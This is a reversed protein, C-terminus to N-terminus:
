KIGYYKALYLIKKAWNTHTNKENMRNNQFSSSVLSDQNSDWGLISQADSFDTQSVQYAQNIIPIQNPHIATKGIFGSLRDQALEKILGEKWDGNFYEWVAGSIIYDLGYVTIIDTFISSIVPISHISEYSHRRLGFLHCLDNGGVRINLVLHELEDLKKKLQYLNHERKRLDVVSESEYIPMFYISSKSKANVQFITELYKDANDLSFKPFIFGTVINMVEGLNQFLRFIQEINRVRIFIKPLYFSKILTQQYIEILSSVLIEEAQKVANDSITDELCLALSYPKPFMECSVKSAVTIHNAPSYLLAGVSYYISSNKMYSVAKRYPISNM